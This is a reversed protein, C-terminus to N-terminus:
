LFQIKNPYMTRKVILMEFDDDFCFRSVVRKEQVMWDAGFSNHMLFPKGPGLFQANAIARTVAFSRPVIIAYEGPNRKKKSDTKCLVLCM